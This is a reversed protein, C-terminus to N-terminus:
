RGAQRLLLMGYGYAKARGVGTALLAAVLDPDRVRARCVIDIAPVLSSTKTPRRREDKHSFKALTFGVVRSALVDFGPAVHRHFIDQYVENKDRPERGGARADALEKYYADKEWSRGHERTLSVMGSFHCHIDFIEGVGFRRVPRIAIEDKQFVDSLRPLADNVMNAMDDHTAGTYGLIMISGDPQFAQIRWPRPSMDGFTEKLVSKIVYNPDNLGIATAGWFSSFYRVALPASVSLQVLNFPSPPPTLVPRPVYNHVVNEVM